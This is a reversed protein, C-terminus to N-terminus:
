RRLTKMWYNRDQTRSRSSMAAKRPTKSCTSTPSSPELNPLDIITGSLVEINQKTQLILERLVIMVAQKSQRVSKLGIRSELM